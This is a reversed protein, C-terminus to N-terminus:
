RRAGQMGWNRAPKEEGEAKTRIRKECNIKFMTIRIQGDTGVPHPVHTSRKITHRITPWVVDSYLPAMQPTMDLGVGWRLRGGGGKKADDIM